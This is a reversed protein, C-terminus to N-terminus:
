SLKAKKSTHSCSTEPLLNKAINKVITVNVANGLSKFALSPNKPMKICEMSQLRAAEEVSLYRKEWGVIPVQSTTCVLSPAFNIDKVRIGSPRFQIIYNYINKSKGSVNWELKQWSHVPLRKIKLMVDKLQKKYKCFFRRNERIFRKKWHPFNRQKYIAYRPLKSFQKEKTSLCLSAGFAGKYCSLEEVSISFPTVDEFPYTAGYEMGWIPVKPVEDYQSVIDIFEQWLNLAEIKEPEIKKGLSSGEFIIDKISTPAASSSPWTFSGLGKLSGVIFLRKRHQPIGFHHPSLIQSDIDYELSKLKNEIYQWTLENNQKKIFPVNELIFYKPKHFALIRIIEEFLTGREKDSLGKLKGAKSFPQCPFGACLIDHRPINEVRVTRIDGSPRIGFNQLYLECLSADIESAFVCKHGLARLAINFGGLGAFLDIFRM